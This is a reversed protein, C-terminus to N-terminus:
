RMGRMPGRDVNMALYGYDMGPNSLTIDSRGGRWVLEDYDCQLAAVTNRPHDREQIAIRGVTNRPDPPGPNRSQDRKDLQSPKGPRGSSRLAACASSPGGRWPPDAVRRIKSTLPDFDRNRRSGSPMPFESSSYNM